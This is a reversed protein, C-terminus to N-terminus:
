GAQFQIISDYNRHQKDADSLIDKVLQREANLMEKLRSEILSEIKESTEIYSRVSSEVRHLVFENFKLPNYTMENEIIV